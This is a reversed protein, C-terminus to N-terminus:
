PKSKSRTFSSIPKSIVASAKPKPKAKPKPQAKAGAALAAPFLCLNSIKTRKPFILKLQDATPRERSVAGLEDVGLRALVRISIQSQDNLLGVHHFARRWAISCVVDNIAQCIIGVWEELTVNGALSDSESRSQNWLDRVRFKFRAFVHTDAPQLLWTLRAPVKNHWCPPV